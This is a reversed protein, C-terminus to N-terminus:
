YSLCYWSKTEVRTEDEKARRECNQERMIRWHRYQGAKRPDDDEFDQLWFRFWDLNREYVALKHRPQFKVHTENPFVYLDAMGERVLPIAYDLSYMYEHESKQFLVPTSIRELKFAPSLVRWQEPTEEPSGLGWTTQLEVLFSDGRLSGLLYYNPSVVPSSVSAATLLDSEGVTWLTVAGGYSLGGMGVKTRDVEGVSALVEIVSEVAARGEDHREVPDQVFGPRRNICLASIGHEALSALPWEDGIGGRVFGDCDYYTVFLPDAAGKNGRARIFQGTFSRGKVDTWRLLRASARRALDAALAENPAFLVQRQGTEVDIMELRPPQDAEAAVCVLATSSVGCPEGMSYRGGGGILGSSYAIVRVAGTKVNWGHISQAGGNNPDSVTFMVEDSGPRWQIASIARGRCVAALCVVNRLAGASPLMSLQFDAAAGEREADNARTLLAVRGSSPDIAADWAKGVDDHAYASALQELEDTPPATDRTERSTLDMAMWRDPVDALLSARVFWEGTFRETALRGNTAGSRFLSQGVPVTEDIQIGWDYEHQEAHVVEERTPGVSFSLTTGDVSLSFDRVDAADSTIPQVRSGDSAARWVGIKGDVLARYYIWSGDSSWVAEAPVAIGIYNRLTGGGDAVRRPPMSGDLDQVYWDTDYTNREISAREVRFAVQSGDPSVVPPGIDAVEVLRRPSILESHAAGATAILAGGFLLRTKMESFMM